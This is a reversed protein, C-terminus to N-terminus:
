SPLFTAHQRCLFDYGHHGGLAQPNGILASTKSFQKGLPVTIQRRLVYIFIHALLVAPETKIRHVTIQSHHLLKSSNFLDNKFVTKLEPCAAAAFSM